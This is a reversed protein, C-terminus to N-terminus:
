RSRTMPGRRRDSPHARAVRDFAVLTDLLAPMAALPIM